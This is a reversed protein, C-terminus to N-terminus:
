PFLERGVKLNIKKRRSNYSTKYIKSMLKKDCIHNAYLKEWEMPQRKEKKNITEKAM